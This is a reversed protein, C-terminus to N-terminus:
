DKGKDTDVKAVKKFCVYNQKPLVESSHVEDFHIECAGKRDGKIVSEYANCWPNEACKRRCEEHNALNFKNLDGDGLDTCAVKSVSFGSEVYPADQEPMSCLPKCAGEEGVQEWTVDSTDSVAVEPMSAPMGDTVGADKMADDLQFDTQPLTQGDATVEIYDEHMVNAGKPEPRGNQSRMQGVSREVNGHATVEVVGKDPVDRENRMDADESSYQRSQSRMHGTAREESGHSTTENMGKDEADIKDLVKAEGADSNAGNHSVGPSKRMVISVDGDDPDAPVGTHVTVHFNLALGLHLFLLAVFPLLM